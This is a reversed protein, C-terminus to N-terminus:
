PPTIRSFGAGHPPLKPAFQAEFDGLDKKEWVDRVACNGSFSLEAQEVAVEVPGANGSNFLAIYEATAAAADEAWSNQGGRAM